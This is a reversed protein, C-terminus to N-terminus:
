NIKRWGICIALRLLCKSCMKKTEKNLGENEALGIVGQGYILALNPMMRLITATGFLHKLTAMSTGAIISVILQSHKLKARIQSSVKSVDQPKVALIIIEANDVLDENTECITAGIESAVHKTKSPDNDHLFIQQHPALTKAIGSGMHGCGIIGIKFPKNNGSM